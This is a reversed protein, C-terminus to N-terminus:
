STETRSLPACSAGIRSGYHPPTTKTFLCDWYLLLVFLCAVSVSVNGVVRRTDAAGFEAVSSEKVEGKSHNLVPLVSGEAISQPLGSFLCVKGRSSESGPFCYHEMRAAM